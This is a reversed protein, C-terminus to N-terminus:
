AGATSRGTGHTGYPRGAMGAATLNVATEEHSCVSGTRGTSHRKAAATSRGKAHSNRVAPRRGQRVAKVEVAAVVAQADWALAAQAFKVTRKSQQLVGEQVM